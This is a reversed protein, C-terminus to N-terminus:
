HPTTGKDAALVFNIKYFVHCHRLIARTRMIWPQAHKFSDMLEDKIEDDDEEIAHAEEEVKKLHVAIQDLQDLTIITSTNQNILFATSFTHHKRSNIANQYSILGRQIMGIGEIEGEIATVFAAKTKPVVAPEDLAGSFGFACEFGSFPDNSSPLTTQATLDIVPEITSTATEEALVLAELKRDLEQNLATAALENEANVSPTTLTSSTPTLFPSPQASSSTFSPDPSGISSSDTTSFM